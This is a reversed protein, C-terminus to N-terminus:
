IPCLYVGHQSYLMGEGPQRITSLIFLSVDIARIEFSEIYLTGNLRDPGQSDM